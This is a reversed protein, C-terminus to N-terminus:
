VVFFFFVLFSNIFISFHVRPSIPINESVNKDNSNDFLKLM